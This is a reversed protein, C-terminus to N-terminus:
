GRRWSSRSRRSGACRGRRGPWSGRRTGRRGGGGGCSAATAQRAAPFHPDVAFLWVLVGVAVSIAAVLHFAVRWGEVGLVTTSALLLASFGGIISGISSTLQLWGFAAGRNGDDTSDAVLSQVAPIVLALGIGNLGRSIAVQLFLIFYFLFDCVCLSVCM